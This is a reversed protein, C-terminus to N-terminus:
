WGQKLATLYPVVQKNKKTKLLYRSIEWVVFSIVGVTLVYFGGTIFAKVLKESAFLISFGIIGYMYIRNKRKMEKVLKITNWLNRMRFFQIKKFYRTGKIGGIFLFSLYIFVIVLPLLNSTAILVGGLLTALGIFLLAGLLLKLGSRKIRWAM